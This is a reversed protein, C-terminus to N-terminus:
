SILQGKAGTVTLMHTPSSRQDSTSNNPFPVMPSVDRNYQVDEVSFFFSKEIHRKQPQPQEAEAGAESATKGGLSSADGTENASNDLNDTSEQGHSSNEQAPDDISTMSQIWIDSAGVQCNTYEITWNSRPRHILGDSVTALKLSYESSLSLGQAVNVQVGKTMTASTWYDLQLQHFILSM